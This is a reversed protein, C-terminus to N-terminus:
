GKKGKKVPGRKEATGSDIRFIQGKIFGVDVM